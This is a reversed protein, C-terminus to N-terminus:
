EDGSGGAICRNVVESLNPSLATPGGALRKCEALMLAERHADYSRLSTFAGMAMSAVQPNVADVMLAMDALLRYGSGDHSHFNVNSTAFARVLSSCKNPSRIDFAEHSLLARVNEVNGPMDCSSQVRLWHCVCLMEGKWQNYFAALCEDREPGAAACVCRLAGLQETMNAAGRFAEVARARGADGGGCSLYRLCTLRLARRGCGEADFSYAGTPMNAEYLREFDERLDGALAAMVRQRAAHVATPDPKSTRLCLDPVSPLDLMHALLRKDARTDKLATSFASVVRRCDPPASPDALSSLILNATLTQAADWRNVADSDHALLFLTQDETLDTKLRVPASFDRLISPVPRESAGVVFTNEWGQLLLVATTAGAPQAEAPGGDRAVSPIEMDAGSPSLLGLSVPILMPRKGSGVDGPTRPLEQRLHITLAKAAEDYSHTAFVTPTGAQEYWLHFADKLPHGGLMADWFEDCSVASGDHREFYADLGRRFGERGLLTQYMRVVEAGKEYVTSTYFNDMKEYFPPRIPHSLAGGDEVFQNERVFRVDDIRKVSRSNLDSTFEQDRFVTLGEKLTLHFWSNLTVRNGTWNHFYEHGIIGQISEYSYDTATEPTALVLRSNFVNLSKNEMAGMNFDDVVVVNFQELDYVRGWREEDWRFAQALSSM